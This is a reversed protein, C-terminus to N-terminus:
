GRCVRARRAYSDVAVAVVKRVDGIFAARYLANLLDSIRGVCQPHIRYAGETDVCIMEIENRFAHVWETLSISRGSM